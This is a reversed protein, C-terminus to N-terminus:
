LRGAPWLSEAEEEEVHQCWRLGQFMCFLSVNFWVMSLNINRIVGMYELYILWTQLEFRIKNRLSWIRCLKNYVTNSSTPIINCITATFSNWADSGLIYYQLDLTFGDCLTTSEEEAMPSTKPKVWQKGPKSSATCILPSVEQPKLASALAVWGRVRCGIISTFFPCFYFVFYHINIYDVAGCFRCSKLRLLFVFTDLSHLCLASSETCRQLDHECLNSAVKFTGPIRIYSLDELEPSGGIFFRRLASVTGTQLPRWTHCTITHKGSM